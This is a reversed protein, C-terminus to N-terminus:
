KKARLRWSFFLTLVLVVSVLAFILLPPAAQEATWINTDVLRFSVISTATLNQSAFIEELMWETLIGTERDWIFELVWGYEAEMPVTLNMYNTERTVGSYTRSITENMRTGQYEDSGYVQDGATLGSSVFMYTGNGAGTAIDIYAAITTETENKFHNVTQFTIRNGAVDQVTNISWETENAELFGASPQVSPDTSDWFAIFDGYKVWDGVEVGVMREQTSALLVSPVVVAASLISLLLFM